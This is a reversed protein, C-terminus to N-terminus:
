DNVIDKLAKLKRDLESKRAACAKEANALNLEREDLALSKTSLDTKVKELAAEEKEIRAARADNEAARLDAADKLEQAQARITRAENLTAQAARVKDAGEARIASVEIRQKELEKVLKDNEAIKGDLAAIRAQAEQAKSPNTILDLLQLAESSM